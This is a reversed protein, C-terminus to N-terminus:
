RYKNEEMGGWISVETNKVKIKHGDNTKMRIKKTGFNPMKVRGIYETGDKMVLRGEEHDTADKIRAYTTCGSFPVVCLLSLILSLTKKM